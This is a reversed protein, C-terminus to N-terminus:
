RRAKADRRWYIEDANWLTSHSLIAPRFNGLNRDAGVLTNPSVLPIWPLQEALIEQVRDFLQKRVSRDLEGLQREMLTDIEKQWAEVAGGSALRWLHRQGTSTVIDLSGNPDSDGGGLGLLCIEYEYTTFLRDSLAAFDLPAIKIALGLRRLDEQM